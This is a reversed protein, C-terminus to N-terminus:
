LALQEALPGLALAAFYSLAGVVLITGLLLGYFTASTTPLTGLSWPRQRKPGMSGAVALMPIVSGFRGALMAFAGIVNYFVTNGTFSAYASGNNGTMSAFAYLVESFLDDLGTGQVPRHGRPPLHRARHARRDPYSTHPLLIVAVLVSALTLLGNPSM